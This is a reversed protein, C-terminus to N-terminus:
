HDLFTQLGAKALQYELLAEIRRRKIDHVRRISELVDSSERVGRNFDADIKNQLASASEGHRTLTELIPTLARIDHFYEHVRSEAERIQYARQLDLAAAEQLRAASEKRRESSEQLDLTVRLGLATEREPLPGPNPREKVQFGSYSAFVDVEPRWWENKLSSEERTAIAQVELKKLEPVDKVHASDTTKGTDITALSKVSVATEPPLGLALALRDETEHMEKEFFLLDRELEQDFLIWDTVLSEALLGAQIKQTLARKKQRNEARTTESLQMMQRIAALRIYDARAKMLEQRFFAHADLKRLAVQTDIAKNRWVDRGSRYVNSVADVKWFPATEGTGDAEKQGRLGSEFAFRPLLSRDWSHLRLRAAETSSDAAHVGQNYQRILNPLDEYALNRTAAGASGMPGWVLIIISAWAKM